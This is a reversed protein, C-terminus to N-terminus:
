RVIKGYKREISLGSSGYFVTKCKHCPWSIRKTHSEHTYINKYYEIWGITDASEPLKLPKIGTQKMDKMLFEHNCKPKRTFFKFLNM